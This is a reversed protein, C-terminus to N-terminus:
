RAAYIAAKMGSVCKEHSRTVLPGYQFLKSKIGVEVLTSDDSNRSVFVPIFFGWSTLSGSEDLVLQGVTEEIASIKYGSQQAFGIISKMVEQPSGAISFSQMRGPRSGLVSSGKRMIAIGYGVCAFVIGIILGDLM